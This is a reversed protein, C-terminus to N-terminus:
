TRPVEYSVQSRSQLTHYRVTDYRIRATDTNKCITQVYSVYPVELGDDEQM